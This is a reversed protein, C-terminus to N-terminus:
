YTVVVRTLRHDVPLPLTLELTEKKRFHSIRRPIFSLFRNDKGGFYECRVYGRALADLTLRGRLSKKEALLKEFDADTLPYTKTRKLTLIVAKGGPKLETKEVTFYEQFATADVKLTKVDFPTFGKILPGLVEGYDVFIASVLFILVAIVLGIGALRLRDKGTLKQPPAKTRAELTRERTDITGDPGVIYLTQVEADKRFEVSRVTSLVQSRRDSPFVKLLEDLAQSIVQAPDEEMADVALPTNDALINFSGGDIELSFKLKVGAAFRVWEELRDATEPADPMRGEILGDLYFTGEIKESM